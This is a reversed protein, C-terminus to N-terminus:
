EERSFREWASQRTMSLAEGIQAWTATLERARLVWQGLTEEVQTAAEAVRPLHALVENLDDIQNWHSLPPSTGTSNELIQRCLDVCENCIYVGAGAILKEVKTSPKRCFSCTPTIAM